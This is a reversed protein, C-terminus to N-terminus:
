AAGVCREAQVTGERRLCCMSWHQKCWASVENKKRKEEEAAAAAAVAAVAAVEQAHAEEQWM